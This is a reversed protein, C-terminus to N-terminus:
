RLTCMFDRHFRMLGNLFIFELWFDCQIGIMCGIYWYLLHLICMNFFWVLLVRVLRPPLQRLSISYSSEWRYFNCAGDLGTRAHKTRLQQLTTTWSCSRRAVGTCHLALRLSGECNVNYEGWLGCKVSWVKCKVSWVEDWRLVRSSKEGWRLKEWRMGDRRAQWRLLNKEVTKMEDSCQDVKRM